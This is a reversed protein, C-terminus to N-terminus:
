INKFIKGYVTVNFQCLEYDALLYNESITIRTVDYIGSSKIIEKSEDCVIIKYPSSAILKNNMRDLFNILYKGAVEPSLKLALYDVLYKCDFRNFNKGEPALKFHIM